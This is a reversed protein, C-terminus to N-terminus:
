QREQSECVAVADRAGLAVAEACHVVWQTLGEKGGEAYGRLAEAYAGAGLELHGVELAVLGQPDLGRSRLLLRAAARAVLGNGWGFPRLVVLEGQLVAAAVLAPATTPAGIVGVLGALRASMEAASPLASVGGYSALPDEVAQGGTRPRGLEAPPVVGAAALLHLRALAQMPARRWATTLEGVAASARVAGRLVEASGSEALAVGSPLDAWASPVGELAASAHAARLASETAVREAGGRLARHSRLSDVAEGARIVAEAICPLVALAGLPDPQHAAPGAVEM